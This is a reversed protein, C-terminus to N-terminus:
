VKRMLTTESFTGDYAMDNSVIAADFVGKLVKDGLELTPDGRWQIQIDRQEQATTELIAEAIFGALSSSQILKNEKITLSRDGNRRISEGDTRTILQAGQLELPKALISLALEQGDASGTVEVVAGWSYHVEDTITAGSPTSSLFAHGDIVAEVDTYKIEYAKVEGNNIIKDDRLEWVTTEVGPAYPYTQVQIRNKIVSVPSTENVIKDDGIEDAYEESGAVARAIFNGAQLLVKGYRDQFAVGGVAEAIQGLAARHPQTDLWGYPILYKQLEEDIIYETNSPNLGDELVQVAITYLSTEQHILIYLSTIEPTIGEVDSYMEVKVFLNDTGSVTSSFLVPTEIGEPLFYLTDSTEGAYVRVSCQEPITASMIYTISVTTGALYNFSYLSQWYSSYLSTNLLSAGIFEMRILDTGYEIGHGSGAKWEATTNTTYSTDDPAEIIVNSKYESEAMLALRDVGSVTVVIDNRPIDWSKAFFVGLPVWNTGDGIEPRIRVGERILNYIASTTNTNDFRRYKNFLQLVIQGSATTGLPVGDDSLERNEIVQLSLIDKDTYLESVATYIEAVKACANSESWKYVRVTMQAVLYQTTIASIYKVGTNDTVQLRYLETRAQNYFVIDFDRAYEMRANDFSVRVQSITRPLFNVSVHPVDVMEGLMISGLLKKGLVAHSTTYSQFTGDATSLQVSRWGIEYADQEAETEPCLVWTGDLVWKGDLSAYKYSVDERGNYTQNLYSGRATTGAWAIITSDINADSYDIRVRAKLHRKRQKQIENKLATPVVIM